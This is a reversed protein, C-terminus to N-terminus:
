QRKKEEQTNFQRPPAYSAADDDPAHVIVHDGYSRTLRSEDRLARLIEGRLTNSGRAFDRIVTLVRAGPRTQRDDREIVSVTDDLREVVVAYGRRAFEEIEEPT